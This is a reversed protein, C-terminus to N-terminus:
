NCAHLSNNRPMNRIEHSYQARMKSGKEIEKKKSLKKNIKLKLYWMETHIPLSVTIVNNKINKHPFFVILKRCEFKFLDSWIVFFSIHLLDHLWMRYRLQEVSVWCKVNTILDCIYIFFFQSQNEFSIYRQLNLRM